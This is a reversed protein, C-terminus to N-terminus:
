ANVDLNLGDDDAKSDIGRIMLVPAVDQHAERKIIQFAMKMMVNVGAEIMKKTIKPYLDAWYRMFACAM